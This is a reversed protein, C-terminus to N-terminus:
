KKSNEFNSFLSITMSFEYPITAFLVASRFSTNRFCVEIQIEEFTVNKEPLLM